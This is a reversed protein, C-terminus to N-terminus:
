HQKDGQRAAIRRAAEAHVPGAKIAEAATDFYDLSDSDRPTFTTAGLTIVPVVVSTGSSAAKSWGVVRGVMPEWKDPVIWLCFLPYPQAEFGEIVPETLGYM